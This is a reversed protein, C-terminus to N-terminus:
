SDWELSEIINYKRAKMAVTKHTIGLAKGTANFSRFKKLAHKIIEREYEEMTAIEGSEGINILNACDSSGCFDYLKSIGPPLDQLEITNRSSLAVLREILNELERVNGPWNYSQLCKEAEKSLGTINKEMKGNMKKIFHKVLLPIDEKREKLSPLYIPIVNIRYYLDERFEGKTILEEISRHTAAIIRVDCKQTKNSGIRQFDREQLVRLLKVQMELPMDGIEDLFITGGNAQEFKGIKRRVAGTFAGQEYGFLESELLTIPIAGCNVTVFPDQARSSDYHIARAVLEKGTGSEGRILVTSSIKSAKYAIALARKMTNSHSIIERFRGTYETSEEVCLSGLEVIREMEKNKPAHPDKRYIAIVGKFIYNEFIPSASVSVQSVGNRNKLMGTVSKRDRLAKLIAGDNKSEYISSGEKVMRGTKMIEEYAKNFYCFQGQENIICVGDETNEFLESYGYQCGSGGDYFPRINTKSVRSTRM